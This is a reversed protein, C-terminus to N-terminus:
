GIATGDDFAKLLQLAANAVRQHKPTVPGVGRWGLLDVPGPTPESRLGEIPRGAVASLTSTILASLPSGIPENPLDGNGQKGM